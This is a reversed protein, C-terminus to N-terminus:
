RAVKKERQREKSNMRIASLKIDIKVKIQNIINADMGVSITRLWMFIMSRNWKGGAKNGFVM